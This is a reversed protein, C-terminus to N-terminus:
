TEIITIIVVVIFIVTMTIVCIRLVMEKIVPLSLYINIKQFM